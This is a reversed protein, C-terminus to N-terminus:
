PPNPQNILTEYLIKQLKYLEADWSRDGIPEFILLCRFHFSLLRAPRVPDDLWPPSDKLGADQILALYATM